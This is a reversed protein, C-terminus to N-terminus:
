MWLQLYWAIIQQGWIFSIAGGLALFPGFPFAEKRSMFRLLILTGGVLSGLVSAMILALLAQPLGLFAGMAAGLKIDGGGMGGRSVMAVALLLGGLFLLGLLSQGLTIGPLILAFVLGAIIGPLTLQDPIIKHEIDIRASLFLLSFFVLAAVFHSTPGYFLFTGAFILGTAAEVLPYTPSVPEGCYRCKGALYLYSFLPILEGPGLRHQCRPCHSPPRVISEERPLRHILVNFFSGVFLGLVFVVAVM